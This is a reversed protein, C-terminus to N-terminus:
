LDAHAQLTRNESTSQNRQAARRRSGTLQAHEDTGAGDGCLLIVRRLPRALCQGVSPIAWGRSDDRGDGGDTAVVVHAFGANSQPQEGVSGFDNRSGLGALNYRLASFWVFPM